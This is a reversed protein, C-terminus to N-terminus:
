VSPGDTAVLLNLVLDKVQRYLNDLGDANNDIVADFATGIWAWESPHVKQSLMYAVASQVQQNAAMAHDYWYPEPGRTVRIVIGGAAKIAKIENPFRCDSIV